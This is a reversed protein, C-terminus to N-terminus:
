SEQILHKMKVKVPIENINFNMSEHLTNVLTEILHNVYYISNDIDKENYKIYCNILKSDNLEVDYKFFDGYFWVRFNIYYPGLDIFSVIYLLSNNNNTKNIRLELNHEKDEENPKVIIPSLKTSFSKAIKKIEKISKM